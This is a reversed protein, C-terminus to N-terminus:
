ECPITARITTGRGAPSEVELRGELVSLRDALGRLGSGSSTHAGGVGDDSIEVTVNGNDRAARVTARSARAYKVVNTLAEAVVFYAALEIPGPLREGLKRELEVPLPARAALSELAADLGRDSLVAPHIGRALERLEELAAELERGASELLQEAGAPDDRLKSRATRMTLALSVLRQQAGDHLNRELRRRETFGVELLRARSSRLDEIRSRLEADLRENDLALTAAAAVASVLEPEEEALVPDHVIAAVAEGDHHVETVARASGPPPLEATAGEGDVWREGDSICYLVELTPDGLARRLADRLEGRAPAETLSGVLERVAGGSALRARALAGLFVYPMLAFATAGAINAIDSATGAGATQGGITMVLLAMVVVGPFLVARLTRRQPASASRWRRWLLVIVLVGLVLGAVNLLGVGVKSLTEHHAIMFANSPCDTCDFDRFDAVLLFPPFAIVTVFYAAAVGARELRTHLSGDPFALLLHMLTAYFVASFANGITFILSQDSLTLAGLFWAFGTAVMLGGFGNEPRRYWVYLGAGIFGWGALLVLAVMIGRLEVNDSTAGMPILALGAVAGLAGLGWLARRLGIL